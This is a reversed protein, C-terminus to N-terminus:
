ILKINKLHMLWKGGRKLRTKPMLAAWGAELMAMTPVCPGCVYGGANLAELVRKAQSESDLVAGILRLPGRM